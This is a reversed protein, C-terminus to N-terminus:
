TLKSGNPVDQNFTVLVPKGEEGVSAAVVMGQSELGRMKRPKLNAVVVVKMGVLDEPQYYEAIGALVQRVEAGIDVTLKLLKTAGEIREATKIEGARFDVKAFEDISILDSPASSRSSMSTGKQPKPAPKGAAAVAAGGSLKQVTREKDLRPFIVEAQGTKQAPLLQGWALDAYRMKELPEPFGLQAWLKQMATPIVPYLLVAAIRLAEASTYLVTALRARSAEDERGALVWPETEVIYKNLNSILRWVAELGRSFEFSDFKSQFERITKGAAEIIEAERSGEGAEPAPHPISGKFYRDIMALTRRALNGLDNALDSNFRQVLGEYSFSSDQGFVIDRMLYYRLGDMGVAEVLPDASVINGKSKSMKDREFLLWGHAFIVKPLPLKAAMLFAPWYVAHFRLIEKGVLHVDAPWCDAFKKEERGGHGYGVGSLYSALADFWVYFVQGEVGPMPIGWKLKERSISLDKLGEKVFSIVENRRTEPRVFAPHKQYYDLLPQQFASLRFFYNEEEILEAPRGCLPCEAKEETDSVFAEDHFCYRGRYHGQYIHGSKRVAQFIKEVAKRHDASSTREFHTYELGLRDWLTRFEASITDVFKQPEMGAARASREIKQGHEDTGTVWAVRHGGLRKYRALADAVITTYTHGLHPRANVYYIPTTLYFTKM